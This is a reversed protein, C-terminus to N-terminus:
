SIRVRAVVDRTCEELEDNSLCNHLNIGSEFCFRRVSRSSFGKKDPFIEKLLLSVESLTKKKTIILDKIYEASFDNMNPFTSRPLYSNGRKRRELSTYRPLPPLPVPSFFIRMSSLPDPSLASPTFFNGHM